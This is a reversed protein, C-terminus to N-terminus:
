SFTAVAVAVLPTLENINFIIIIGISLVVKVKEYWWENRIM